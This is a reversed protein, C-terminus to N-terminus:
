AAPRDLRRQIRPGLSAPGPSRPVPFMHDVFGYTLADKASLRTNAAMMEALRRKDIRARTAYIDKM